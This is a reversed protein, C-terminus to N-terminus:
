RLQYYKVQSQAVALRRLDEEPCKETNQSIKIISFGSKKQNRVRGTEKCLRQPSNRNCNTDSGDEHEMTQKNTQKIKTRKCPRLVQTQKRKRKNKCQETSVAFDMKSSTRKKRNVIM